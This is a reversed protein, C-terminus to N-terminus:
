CAWKAGSEGVTILDGFRPFVHGHGFILMPCGGVTPCGMRCPRDIMSWERREQQPTNHKLRAVTSCGAAVAAAADAAAVVADSTDQRVFRRPVPPGIAGALSRSPASERTLTVPGAAESHSTTVARGM